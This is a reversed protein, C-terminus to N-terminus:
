LPDQGTSRKYASRYAWLVAPIKDDWDNKDIGCIKTLGKHLTKNFSEVVGNEQPHYAITRKHDILFKNLLVQITENVFHTGQDSILTLPCGFRTIINEYIFKTTVEKTCTEVPEAEAWKTVYKVATIIYKACTRRERQPFPGVFDIAWIEFPLNSNVSQLPIENKWLPRGMRQVVIVNKLRNGVTKTCTSWWLGAQLIKRATTDAQFHGGLQDWMHKMSSTKENM